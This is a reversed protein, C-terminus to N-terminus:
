VFWPEFRDGQPLAAGMRGPAGPIGRSLTSSLTEELIGLPTDANVVPSLLTTTDVTLDWSIPAGREPTLENTPDQAAGRFIWAPVPM